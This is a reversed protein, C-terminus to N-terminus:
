LQNEKAPKYINNVNIQQKGLLIKNVIEPNMYAVELCRYAHRLAVHEARGISDVDGGQEYM